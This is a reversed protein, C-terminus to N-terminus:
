RSTEQILAQRKGEGKHTQDVQVQDDHHSM